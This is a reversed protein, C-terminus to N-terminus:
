EVVAWATMTGSVGMTDGVIVRNQMTITRSGSAVSPYAWAVAVPLTLDGVNCTTETGSTQNNGDIVFRFGSNYSGAGSAYFKGSFMAFITCTKTLTLTISLSTLNAYSTNTLTGATAREAYSIDDIAGAPKDWTPATGGANVILSQGASGLALRTLTTASTAYVLDGATTYVWLADFNDRTHTNYQSATYTQGTVATFNNDFAM